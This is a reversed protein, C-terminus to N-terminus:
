PPVPPRHLAEPLHQEPARTALAGLRLSRARIIAGLPAGLRGLGHAGSTATLRDDCYPRGFPVPVAPRGGGPVHHPMRRRTPHDLLPRRVRAPSPIRLPRPPGLSGGSPDRVRRTKPMDAQPSTGGHPVLPVPHAQRQVHPVQLRKQGGPPRANM